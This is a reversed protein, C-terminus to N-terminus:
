EELKKPGKKIQNLLIKIEAILLVTFLIAFLAFTLQVTSTSLHSTSVMTPLLDQITWPQRGVEAVVWGLETAIWGLAVTIMSLKLLGKKNAIRDKLTLFLVLAFFLIFYFGLAVMIHFSYFTLPVNPIGDEKSEFYGYGFHKYNEEFVALAISATDTDNNKKAIKYDKLSTIAIKGKEMRESYSIINHEENGDVLDRVGPVFANADRYGLSSLMKPIKIAFVYDKKDDNYKKNPTIMGITVLGAGEEGNYLGEMAAFKMPQDQAVSYASGDGTLAVFISALLGFTAAILISRKAFLTHRNRILYWASVGIVFLAGLVYAQTVTHLFK